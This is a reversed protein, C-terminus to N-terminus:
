PNTAAIRIEPSLADAAAADAAAPSAAASTAPTLRAGEPVDALITMGAGIRAGAGIAIGPIVTAGAGVFAGDGVSVGGCLTAGPAIHVLEGVSCHHDIRAGTNVISGAGIRTGTQVVAGAMVQVGAALDCGAAVTAAPHIVSAFVFSRRHWTRHLHHRALGGSAQATDTSGVGNVLGVAGPQYRNLVTDDGLIETGLPGAAGTAGDPSLCGLVIRGSRQLADILVAAHGGTGLVIVPPLGRADASETM